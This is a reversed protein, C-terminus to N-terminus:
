SSAASQHRCAACPCISRLYDFSYIGSRHGDSWEIHIAYRGVPGIQVPRVDEPVESAKLIREGSWEDVCAACSCARRLYAVPYLSVHGDQWQIRLERPGSQRIEAPVPDSM